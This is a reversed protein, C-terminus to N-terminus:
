IIPMQQGPLPLIRLRKINMQLFESIQFRYEAHFRPLARRNLARCLFSAITNYRPPM